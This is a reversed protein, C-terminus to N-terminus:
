LRHAPCAGSYANRFSQRPGQVISYRLAVLFRTAGASISLSASRAAWGVRRATRSYSRGTLAQYAKRRARHRVAAALRDLVSLAPALIRRQRLEDLLARVLVLGQDTSRALTMLWASAERHERLGFTRWDFRSLLEALHERRTEDRMAYEAVRSPSAGVQEAIFQLM